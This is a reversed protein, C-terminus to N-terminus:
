HENPPLWVKFEKVRYDWFDAFLLLDLTLISPEGRGGIKESRQRRDTAQWADLDTASRLGQRPRLDTCRGTVGLTPSAGSLPGSSRRRRRRSHYSVDHIFASRRTLLKSPNGAEKKPSYPPLPVGARVGPFHQEQVSDASARRSNEKVQLPNKKAATPRWLSTQTEGMQEHKLNRRSGHIRGAAPM